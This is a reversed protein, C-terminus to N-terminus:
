DDDDTIIVDDDSILALEDMKGSRKRSPSPTTAEPVLDTPRGRGSAASSKGDKLKTSVPPGSPETDKEKADGRLMSSKPSSSSKKAPKSAAKGRSKFVQAEAPSGALAMFALTMIAVILRVTEM